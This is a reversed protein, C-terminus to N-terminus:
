HIEREKTTESMNKRDIVRRAAAAIHRATLGHLEMLERLDGSEGFRDRIGIIEVPVPCHRCVIETVTGGLGGLINHDEVTVIAGTETALEIVAEEDAPKITHMDLLSARIGESRLLAEAQIAESVLLGSAVIGVDPGDSIRRAKGVHFGDKDDFINRAEGRGLRIYFPGTTDVAARVTQRMESLDAPLVLTIRPVSRILAIDEFCQHSSGDASPSIGSHTAVMKVNLGDRAVSNRIQEWARGALFTAYTSVIPIKGASALGAATGVMDQESIGLNFYREPFAEFASVGTSRGLDGTIVVLNKYERGLEVLIKGLEERFTPMDIGVIM